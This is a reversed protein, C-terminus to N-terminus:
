RSSSPDQSGNRRRAAVRLPSVNPSAAAAMADGYLGRREAEAILGLQEALARRMVSERDRIREALEADSYAAPPTERPPEQPLEVIQATHDM